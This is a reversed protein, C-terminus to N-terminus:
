DKATAIDATGGSRVYILNLVVAAVCMSKKLLRRLIAFLLEKVENHRDTRGCPVVATGRSPIQNFKKNSNKQFDTSYIWPENFYSLFLPCKVHRGNYLPASLDKARGAESTNQKINLINRKISTKDYVLATRFTDLWKSYRSFRDRARSTVQCGTLPSRVAWGHITV